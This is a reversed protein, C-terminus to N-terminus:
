GQWQYVNFHHGKRLYNDTQIFGLKQLVKQSAINNMDVEAVLQSITLQNQVYELLAAVAETALGKGWYEPLLRYGIDNANIETEFKIGCFGIVKNDAKHILAYRGYGYQAYEKLWINTIVNLADQVSTVVIGDGTYKTVLPDALFPYVDAADNATFHRMQLRPTDILITMM